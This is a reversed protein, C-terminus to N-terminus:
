GSNGVISTFNERIDEIKTKFKISQHFEITVTLTIDGTKLVTLIISKRM